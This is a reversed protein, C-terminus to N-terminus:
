ATGKWFQLSTGTHSEILPRGSIWPSCASPTATLVAQAIAVRITTVADFINNGPVGCYQSEHMKEMVPRIRHAIIRALIKYDTNLFTIPRYGEPTQTGNPKPLCVIIGQNQQTDTTERLMMQNLIDCLDDKVTKWNEKCSATGIGDPGPAKNNGDKRKAQKIEEPTVTQENPPILTSPLAPQIADIM